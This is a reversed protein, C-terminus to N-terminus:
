SLRVGSVGAAHCGDYGGTLTTLTIRLAMLAESDAGPADPNREIVKAGTSGTDTSSNNEDDGCAALLVACALAAIAALLAPLHGRRM